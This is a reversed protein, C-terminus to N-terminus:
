IKGGNKIVSERYQRCANGWIMGHAGMTGCQHRLTCRGCSAKFREETKSMSDVDLTKM